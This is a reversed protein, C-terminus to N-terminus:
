LSVTLTAIISTNESNVAAATTLGTQFLQQNRDQTFTDYAIDLKVQGFNYGLGFSYGFLDGITTEDIFPSDEYRAGGRFSWEQARIEGGLRYSNVPKLLNDIAINQANFFPDSEPRFSLETMDKYSYDFSILGYKGFLFAFSGTLKQPTKIEYSEFINTVNPDVNTTFVGDDDVATTSVRQSTEETITKWTPSDYTFGLRINKTVRSIAGLQFSFGSGITRLNNEFRIDTVNTFGQDPGADNSEFLVTSQNFDLFHSNLNLGLYLNDNYQAGLNFSAKGSYGRSALTYDQDYTDAVTNVSYETNNLDDSAPNIIFSQFGLLAQQAGFGETEGLFQYLEGVSEGNVTQLLDLPVGQAFNNFYSSISTTNTGVARFQTDFNATRDYNFGLSIKKWRSNPAGEIIFVGGAQNISVDSDSILTSNGLFNATTDFSDGVVSLSAVGKTFVASSAPNDGIASLDGGLAGFAGGMARYRATGTVNSGTYNLADTISQAFSSGTALIAMTFILKKM